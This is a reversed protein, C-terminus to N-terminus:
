INTIQWECHLGQCCTVCRVRLGLSSGPQSTCPHIKRARSVSTNTCQQRSWALIVAHLRHCTTSAPFLSAQPLSPQMFCPLSGWQCSSFLEPPVAAVALQPARWATVSNPHLLVCRDTWKNSKPPLHFGVLLWQLGFPLGTDTVSSLFKNHRRHVRELHYSPEQKSRDESRLHAVQVLFEM